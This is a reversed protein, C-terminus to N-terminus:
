FDLSVGFTYIRPRPYFNNDISNFNEPDQGSYKTIIFANNVSGYVRLSSSKVFKAFKYGLTINDCRLFSADELFYDSYQVDGVQSTLNPDAAGSYFDLVNNLATSTGQVARETFGATLLRSNYVQGGIQGRFNAVLDWNKYNFTTSFGYTWNPRLAKYYRDKNDIEGDGNRDVYTGFIANGNSDYVQEWVWASYAQEGVTHYALIVGTGVPLGSETAKVTSIGNLDSVESYNYAVNGGVSISLKDSEILKVNLNLEYGEGEISGVNKVFEDSLAQGPLGPVVALLDDTTRKYADFSGSVIGRKFFDFDIGINSTSTKEWTINPDFPRASYTSIDGGFYQSNINGEVFFPRTPFYGVTGAINSQGTKGWGVRIKLEQVFDVDKLFSEEKIKWAAGAAPFYGWRQDEAFLSSADARYTFTFLYKGKMDINARGFFAQLNLPLYYRGNPNSPDFFTERVGTEINNRFPFKNGDTVFDQYSYGGQVDVKSVFGSLSKSYALYADLTKNTSTQNELEALGTNFVFNTEPDFNTQDFSYAGLANNKFDTRIRSQSADIGLNVVARLDKLFFLKYDFEINGLFRTTRQPRTRQELLALPNTAGDTLYKPPTTPSGADLRIAQYYGGFRNNLSSGYIPKTPDMAIAGGIAGGEDIDNKDTYTGKANLDIKLDDNWFKPTMKLSYSFRKYDNERVLGQTNNAGISARFPIKNYLNARASFNYDSSISTRYIADQWDTNSIIRGEVPTTAPNDVLENTPDDIGLDNVRSPYYEKIFRTFEDGTMVDVKKDVQGVSVSSSFNFQPKGATGKKTTILIVGNSARVGYIATASADKLISFSEVDNPNILTFPNSVGAPNLDGIPVGDIIILPNNSASLSAGGRIRINPASDPQGGNSTIRVGAAKGALLQDVSVIAGKNFDKSTILAVSGTADKKKASGYGVQIVVEQLQNSEELLSVSLDSQANYTIATDVYGVYSFVIKEGKKVKNLKFKGDFDTQTGNAAGQIVVNVGPLPQKSVKDVVVGEVTSQAFVSLPLLLMLFLLKNYITKM